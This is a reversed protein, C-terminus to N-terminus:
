SPHILGRDKLDLKENSFLGWPSKEQAAEVAFTAGFQGKKVDENTSENGHLYSLLPFSELLSSCPSPNFPENEESAKRDNRHLWVSALDTVLGPTGSLFYALLCRTICVAVPNKLLCVRTLGKSHCWQGDMGHVEWCPQLDGLSAIIVRWRLLPNACEWSDCAPLVGM